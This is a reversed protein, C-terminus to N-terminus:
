KKLIKELAAAVTAAYERAQAYTVAAVPELPLARRAAEEDQNMVDAERRPNEPSKEATTIQDLEDEQDFYQVKPKNINRKSRRPNEPTYVPTKLYEARAAAQEARWKKMYEVHWADNLYNSAIMPNEQVTKTPEDTTKTNDSCEPHGCYQLNGGCTISRTLGTPEPNAKIFEIIFDDIKDGIGPMGIPFKRYINQDTTAVSEAAKKYAKAQYPKQTASALYSAAKDILAQYIPQNAPVSCSM